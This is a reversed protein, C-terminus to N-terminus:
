DGERMLKKMKRSASITRGIKVYPINAEFKLATYNVMRANPYITRMVSASAAGMELTAGFGWGMANQPLLSMDVQRRDISYLLDLVEDLRVAAEPHQYTAQSTNFNSYVFQANLFFRHYNVYYNLRKGISNKALNQFLNVGIGTGATQTPINAGFSMNRIEPFNSRMLERDIPSQTGITGSKAFASFKWISYFGNLQAGLQKTEPRFYNGPMYEFLPALTVFPKSLYLDFSRTAPVYYYSTITTERKVKALVTSQLYSSYIYEWKESEFRQVSTKRKMYDIREHVYKPSFVDFIGDIGLAVMPTFSFGKLANQDGSGFMANFEPRLDISIASVKFRVGSSFNFGYSLPLSINESEGGAKAVAFNITLLPIMRIQALSLPRQKKKTLDFRYGTRLMWGNSIFGTDLREGKRFVNGTFYGFDFEGAGGTVGFWNGNTEYGNKLYPKMAAFGINDYMFKEDFKANEFQANAQLCLFFLPAWLLSKNMHKM